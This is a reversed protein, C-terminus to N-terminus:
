WNLRKLRVVDVYELVEANLLIDRLDFSFIIIKVIERVELTFILNFIIMWIIRRLCSYLLGLNFRIRRFIYPVKKSMIILLTNNNKINIVM